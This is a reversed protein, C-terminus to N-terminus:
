VCSGMFQTWDRRFQGFSPFYSLIVPRVGGGGGDGCVYRSFKSKYSAGYLHYIVGCIPSTSTACGM